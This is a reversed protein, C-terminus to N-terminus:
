ENTLEVIIEDILDSLKINGEADATNAEKVLANLLEARKGRFNGTPTSLAVEYSGKQQELLNEVLGGRGMSESITLSEKHAESITEAGSGGLPHYLDTQDAESSGLREDYMGKLGAFYSKAYDDSLGKLADQVYSNSHEDSFKQIKMSNGEKNISTAGMSSLNASKIIDDLFFEMSYKNAVRGRYHKLADKWATGRGRKWRKLQHRMHRRLKGPTTIQHEYLYGIARWYYNEDPTKSSRTLAGTWVAGEPDVFALGPPSTLVKNIIRRAASRFGAGRKPANDFDLTINTGPIDVTFADDESEAPKAVPGRIGPIVGATGSGKDGAGGPTVGEARAHEAQELMNPALLGSLRQVERITDMTEDWGKQVVLDQAIEAEDDIYDQSESQVEGLSAAHARLQSENETVAVQQLTTMGDRYTEILDVTETLGSSDTTFQVNGNSFLGIAKALAKELDSAIKKGADSNFYWAAGVVGLLLLATGTGVIVKGAGGGVAEGFARSLAKEAMKADESIKAPDTPARPSRPAAPGAPTPEPANRGAGSAADGAAEAGNSVVRSGAESGAAGARAAANDLVPAAATPNPTAAAAREAVRATDGASTEVVEQVVRFEPTAQLGAKEMGKLVGKWYGASRSQKLLREVLEENKTTLEGVTKQLESVTQRYLGSLEAGLGSAEDGVRGVDGAVEAAEAAAQAAEDGSKSLYQRFTRQAEMVAIRQKKLGSIAVTLKKHASFTPKLGNKADELKKVWDGFVENSLLSDGKKMVAEPTEGFFPNRPSIIKGNDIIESMANTLQRLTWNFRAAQVGAEEAVTKAAAIATAEAARAARAAAPDVPPKVKAKPPAAKPPTGKPKPPAGKSPTVSMRTKAKPKPPTAGPITAGPKSAPTGKAGAAAADAVEDTGKAGTEFLPVFGDLGGADKRLMSAVYEDFIESSATKKIM